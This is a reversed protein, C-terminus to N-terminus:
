ANGGFNPPPPPLASSRSSVGALNQFRLEQRGTIERVILIILMLAGFRLLTSLVLAAPYFTNEERTESGAMVNAIYGTFISALLVGWWFGLIEPTEKLSRTHKNNDENEPDSGHWIERMVQFPKVFNVFPIFWLGVAWGPTFELGRVKLAYLNKHARFVWALFVIITVVRAFPELYLFLAMLQFVISMSGSEEPSYLDRHFLAYSFGLVALFLSMAALCGFLAMSPYALIALPRYTHESFFSATESNEM